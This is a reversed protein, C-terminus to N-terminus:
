RKPRWGAPSPLRGRDRERSSRNPSAVISPTPHKASSPIAGAVLDGLKGRVNAGTSGSTRCPAPLAPYPSAGKERAGLLKRVRADSGLSRGSALLGAGEARALRAFHEAFLSYTNIKGVATLEFRRSTRFFENTADFRRKELVFESWLRPNDSELRAIAKKRDDGSMAAVDRSKAAFYSLQSM